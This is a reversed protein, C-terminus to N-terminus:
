RTPSCPTRSPPTRPGRLGVDQKNSGDCRDVVDPVDRPHLWLGRDGLLDGAGNRDGRNCPGRDVPKRIRCYERLVDRLDDLGEAEVGFADAPPYACPSSAELRSQLSRAPRRRHRHLLRRSHRSGRWQTVATTVVASDVDADTRPQPQGNLGFPLNEMLLVAGANAAADVANQNRRQNALAFGGDVILGVM